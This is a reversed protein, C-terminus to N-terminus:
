KKTTAEALYEIVDARAAPDPLHHIDLYDDLHRRTWRPSAATWVMRYPFGEVAGYRREFLGALHPGRLNQEAPDLSHCMACKEEFAKRGEAPDGAAAPLAPAACALLGAALVIARM